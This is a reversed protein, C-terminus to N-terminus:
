FLKGCELVYKKNGCDYIRSYGREEMIEKETKNIDYGERVLVDKRFNFRNIRKFNTKDLYYYNPPSDHEYKFNLSDYVKGDSYRKDAYSIIKKPNHKEIFHNLLKSAGGIISTDTKSCLRLLEYEGEVHNEGLNKRKKGFTMIMMLEDKFYLGYRYKSVCNGQLHSSDLFEKADVFSVEKITCKRAYIKHSLAGLKAKILSIVINSKGLWEDEFIQILRIGREECLKLKNLHYTKEKLKDSHWYLGNFEVAFKENPFYIDLEKPPIIEKTNYLVNQTLGSIQAFLEKQILSDNENLPNCFICPNIRRKIRYDFTPKKILYENNCRDCVVHYTCLALINDNYRDKIQVSYKESLSKLHVEKKNKLYEKNAVAVVAGYKKKNTQTRKEIIGNIHTPHSVGYKEIMKNKIFDTKSFINEVGYRELNTKKIKEFTTDYDMAERAKKKHEDCKNMCLMSCYTGYGEQISRGFVLEKNCNKCKPIEKIQYIYHYIREKFSLTLHNTYLLIAECLKNDYNRLRDERTKWGSKNDTTFFTFLEKEM